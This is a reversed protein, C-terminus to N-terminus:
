INELETILEKCMVFARVPHERLLESIIKKIPQPELQALGCVIEFDDHLVWKTVPLKDHREQSAADKFAQGIVARWLHLSSIPDQIIETSIGIFMKEDCRGTM